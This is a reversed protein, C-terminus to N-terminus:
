CINSGQKTVWTIDFYNTSFYFIGYIPVLKGNECIKKRFENLSMSKIQKLSLHIYEQWTM